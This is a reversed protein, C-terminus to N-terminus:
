PSRGPANPEPYLVISIRHQHLFNNGLVIQLPSELPAVLLTADFAGQRTEFRHTLRGLLFTQIPEALRHFM